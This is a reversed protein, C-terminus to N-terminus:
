ESELTIDNWGTNLSRTFVQVLDEARSAPYKTSNDAWWASVTQQWSAKFESKMDDRSVDGAGGGSRLFNDYDSRFLSYADVLGATADAFGGDGRLARNATVIQNAEPRYSDRDRIEYGQGETPYDANLANKARDKDDMLQQWQPTINGEADHHPTIAEQDALVADLLMAQLRGEAVVLDNVFPEIGRPARLGFQKMQRWAATGEEGGGAGQPDPVFFTMGLPAEDMLDKNAKLFDVNRYTAEVYTGGIAESQPTIAGAQAPVSRMWKIYADEWADGAKVSAMIGERLGPAVATLGQERAAMSLTDEAIQPSSPAFFGFILSLFSMEVSRRGLLERYERVKVPDSADEPSLGLGAAELAVATKMVTKAGYSGPAYQGALGEGLALTKKFVPPLAQYIGSVFNEAAGDGVNLDTYDMNASIDGFMIREVVQFHDRAVPMSRLLPQLSISMWPSSLTPIASGLDLSPSLWQVNGSFALPSIGYKVNDFGIVAGVQQVVSMVAASGPYMFYDNGFDDRHVFGFDQQAQWALNAKQISIPDFKVLRMMRRAFDEQARYYRAVNRVQWSLNTRITPNDVFSMTLEYAREAAADAFKARASAEGFVEAWKRELPRMATRSELYNSYFIPNRSMRSMSRGMQSWIGESWSNKVPLPITGEAGHVLVSAPTAYKGVLFDNETIAYTGDPRQLSFTIKGNKEHRLASWLDQNWFDMVNKESGSGRKTFAAAMDDMMRRVHERAGMDDALRFRGAVYAWDTSGEAVGLVTDIIQDIRTADRGGPSNLAKWYEPVQHLAAQNLGYNDAMFGLRAMMGRAQQPSLVNSNIKVSQYGEDVSVVRYLNGKDDFTYRGSNTLTPVSGDMLHNAAEAAMDKYTLGHASRLFDEEDLLYQMQKPTLEDISNARTPIVKKWGPRNWVVNQRLVAKEALEIMAEPGNELAERRAYPSTTPAILRAMSAVVGDLENGGKDWSLRESINLISTRVIGRKRRRGFKAAGLLTREDEVQKLLSQQRTADDHAKALQNLDARGARHEAEVRELTKISDDYAQRRAVYTKEVRAMSEDVAEDIRRGRFFKGMKGGTLVYMAIDEFANRLAFRPGYLSGLVWAETVNTGVKGQFLFSNMFSQRAAYQDMAQFNPVAMHGRTQGMYLASAKGTADVSPNTQRLVPDLRGGNVQEAKLALQYDAEDDIGQLLRRDQRRVRDRLAKREKTLRAIEDKPTLPVVPQRKIKGAKFSTNLADDVIDQPLLAVKQDAFRKSEGIAHHWSNQGRTETTLARRANGSFMRSHALWAAEEGHMDFGRGTMAHGFFDHVARFLDNQEDTLYPHSSNSARTSLAKIRKNEAVDRLMEAPNAYPDEDVIEITYGRERLFAAQEETELILDDYAAKVEADDAASVPLNEYADAIERQREPNVRVAQYDVAPVEDAFGVWQLYDDHLTAIEDPVDMHAVPFPDRDMRWNGPFQSGDPMRNLKNEGTYGAKMVRAPNGKKPHPIIFEEGDQVPRTSVADVQSKGSKIDAIEQEIEAIRADEPRERSAIEKRREGNMWEVEERITARIGPEDPIFNAGYEEKARLGTMERMIRTALHPDVADLGMSATFTGTLGIMINQRSAANGEVWALRILDSGGRGLGAAVAMRYVEDAHQATEVNLGNPLNPLRTMLRAWTERAGQARGVPNFWSRDRKWGKVKLYTTGDQNRERKFFGLAMGVQRAGEGRDYLRDAFRGLLTRQMEGDIVKWDGLELGLAKAFDANTSVLHNFLQLRTESDANAWDIPAFRAENLVSEVGVVAREIYPAASVNDWQTALMARVTAKAVTSHPMYVGRRVQQGKASAVGLGMGERAKAEEKSTNRMAKNIQGFAEEMTSVPQELAVRKGALIQGAKDVDDFYTAWDDATFLGERKAVEWDQSTLLSNRKGMWRARAKKLITAKVAEDTAESYAKVASGFEDFEARVGNFGTVRGLIANEAMPGLREARLVNGMGGMREAIQIGYKAARFGKGAIGAFVLPDFAFWSVVNTVDRGVSFPISGPDLGLADGAILNGYNGQDKAYLDVMVEALNGGAVNNGSLANQVMSVARPNDAITAKFKEVAEPDDSREATYLGMALDVLEKDGYKELVENYGQQSVFDTSTAQWLAGLVAQGSDLIQKEGTWPTVQEVISQAAEQGVPSQGAMVSDKVNNVMLMQMRASHTVQEVGWLTAELLWNLIEMGGGDPGMQGTTNTPIPAISTGVTSADTSAQSQQQADFAAQQAAAEAMAAAQETSRKSMADSLLASAIIRQKVPLINMLQAAALPVGEDVLQMARDVASQAVYVNHVTAVDEPKMGQDAIARMAAPARTALWAVKTGTDQQSSIEAVLADRMTGGLVGYQSAALDAAVIGTAGGTSYFDIDEQTLLSREPDMGDDELAKLRGVVEDNAVRDALGLGFEETANGPEWLLADRRAQGGSDYATAAFYAANREPKPTYVPSYQEPGGMRSVYSAAPNDPRDQVDRDNAVPLYKTKNPAM